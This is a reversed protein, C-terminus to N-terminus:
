DDADDVLGHKALLKKFHRRNIDAHEAARSINRGFREFVAALYRREFKDTLAEKAEKFPLHTDVPDSQAGGGDGHLWFTLESFPASAKGSLVFARELVNRLERVNGPWPYAQLQELNKGSVEGPEGRGEYFHRVLCPIDEPRERLAPLHIHVVALRHFLDFRFSEDSVMATLDRHTATIVRAEVPVEKDSGLPQVTKAELARLLKAQSALPLEGIEDLFITGGHARVFAGKRESVAGTFAGRVHGFFDSEILQEKAASCDVVVFPGSARASHDHIARAAVEKGTGSEGQLVITAETPSALDLISFIERIPPSEGVLGGFRQRSSMPVTPRSPEDIRLATDGIQLSTGIPVVAESIRSGQSLTGNRSGLDRVRVGGPALSLEVHQRSVKSDKLVLDCDGGAGIVLPRPALTAERGTDPGGVVRCLAARPNKPLLDSTSIGTHLLTNRDV